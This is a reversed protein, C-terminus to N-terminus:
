VYLVTYKNQLLFLPVSRRILATIIVHYDRSPNEKSVLSLIRTALVTVKFFSELLPYVTMLLGEM